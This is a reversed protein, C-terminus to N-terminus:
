ASPHKTICARLVDTPTVLGVPKEVGTAEDTEAIWLHHVEADIMRKLAVALTCGPSCYVLGPAIAPRRAALFELVSTVLSGLTDVTLTRVDSASINDVIAGFGDVVALASVGRAQMFAFAELATTANGDCTLVQRSGAALGAADLTLASAEGLHHAVFRVVDSMSVVGVPRESDDVVVARHCPPGHHGAGLRFGTEVLEFLTTAGSGKFLLVGDEDAPLVAPLENLPKEAVERAVNAVDEIRVHALKPAAVVGESSPPSAVLLQTIVACVDRADIFGAFSGGKTVPAALVRKAALKALAESLPAGADVVVVDAAAASPLDSVAAARLAEAVTDLSAM